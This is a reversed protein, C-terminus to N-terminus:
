HKEDLVAGNEVDAHEYAPPAEGAMLVDKEDAEVVVEVIRDNARQGRRGFKIWTYIILQGVLMGIASAMLGGIVGVLAPIIFFRLTQHLMHGFKHFQHNGHHHPGRHHGHGHGGRMGMKSGRCGGKKMWGKAAHAHSRAAEMMQELRAKVIARFRCISWKSSTNCTTAGPTDKFPIQSIQAITISDDSDTHIVDIALTDVKVAQGNVALVTLRLPIIQVDQEQDSTISPLREIAFDLHVPSSETGDPRLLVADFVPLSQGPAPM